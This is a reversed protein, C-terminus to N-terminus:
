LKSDPKVSPSYVGFQVHGGGSFDAVVPLDHRQGYEFRVDGDSTARDNDADFLWQGDNFSGVEDIGDTNVDAVIPLSNENGFEFSKDNADFRGDGNMDLVWFGRRFIGINDIGDGNWDGVVPMDGGAGFRFVHDIADTRSLGDVTRRMIRYGVMKAPTSAQNKLGQQRNDADPLGPEVRVAQVDGLWSKGFVGIDTKGDGDWDGTVPLDGAKGLRVWLDNADWHADGNLDLFWEGNVFLGLEDVGDGNFDGHVPIGGNTGLTTVLERGEATLPRFSFRGEDFRREPWPFAPERGPAYQPGAPPVAVRPQGGNIVSLHWSYAAHEGGSCYHAQAIPRLSAPIGAPVLPENVPSLHAELEAIDSARTTSQLPDFGVRAHAV